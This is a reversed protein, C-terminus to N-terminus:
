NGEPYWHEHRSTLPGRAHQCGRVKVSHCKWASGGAVLRLSLSRSMRACAGAAVPRTWSVTIFTAFHGNCLAQGELTGKNRIGICCVMFLLNLFCTAIHRERQLKSKGSPRGPRNELNRKIFGDWNPRNARMFDSMKFNEIRRLTAM